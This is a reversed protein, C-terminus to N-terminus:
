QIQVGVVPAFSAGPAAVGAVPAYSPGAVFAGVSTTLFSAPMSAPDLPDSAEQVETGDAWRDGDTDVLLPNTGRVFEQGDSLTDLDSDENGDLVGDDDTDPDTPNVGLVVEGRNSLGDGDFDENGDATGDDDSDADDASLGLLAEVQDPVGDGDRDADALPTDTSTPTPSALPTPTTTPTGTPTGTPTTHDLITQVVPDMRATDAALDSAEAPDLGDFMTNENAQEVAGVLADIDEDSFSGPDNEEILNVAAESSPGIVIGQLTLTGSGSGLGTALPGFALTRYTTRSTPEVEAEFVLLAGSAARANPMLTFAGNATIHGFDLVTFSGTDLCGARDNCRAVHVPQDADCDQLGNPGPRLCTGTAVLVAGCGSITAAVGGVLEDIGVRGDSNSDLMSCADLREAGLAIRVGQMLETVTVTGNDDCDGSCEQALVSAIPDAALGLGLCLAPLLRSCLPLRFARM